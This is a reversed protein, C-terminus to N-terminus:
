FFLLLHCVRVGKCQQGKEKRGNRGKKVWFLPPGPGGPGEGQDAVPLNMKKM